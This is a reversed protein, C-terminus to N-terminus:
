SWMVRFICQLHGAYKDCMFSHTVLKGNFILKFYNKLDFIYFYSELLQPWRDKLMIVLNDHDKLSFTYYKHRM